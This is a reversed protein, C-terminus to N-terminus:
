TSFAQNGDPPAIKPPFRLPHPRAPPLLDWPVHRQLNYSTDRERERERERGRGGERERVKGRGRERKQGGHPSYGTGCAGSAMINQGLVHSCAVMSQISQFRSRFYIKRGM